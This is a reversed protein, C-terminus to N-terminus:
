RSSARPSRRRRLAAPEPGDRVREAAPVPDPVPPSRSDPCPGLHGRRRRRPRAGRGARAPRARSMKLAIRDSFWFMAFNFAVAIVLFV